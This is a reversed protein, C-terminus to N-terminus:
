SGALEAGCTTTTTTSAERRTAMHGWIISAPIDGRYRHKLDDYIQAQSKREFITELMGADKAQALKKITKKKEPKRVSKNRRPRSSM